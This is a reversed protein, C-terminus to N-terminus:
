ARKIKDGKILFMAHSDEAALTPPSQYVWEASLIAARWKLGRQALAKLLAKKSFALLSQNYRSVIKITVVDIEELSRVLFM